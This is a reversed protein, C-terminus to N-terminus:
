DSDPETLQRSDQRKKEDLWNKVQKYVQTPVRGGVKRVTGQEVSTIWTAKVVCPETLGTQYHGRPHWPVDFWGSRPPNKKSTTIVAVRLPDGAAIEKPQSLVVSAHDGAPRGEPDWVDAWVISGLKIPSEAV